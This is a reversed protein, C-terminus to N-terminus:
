RKRPRGRPKRFTAPAVEPASSPEPEVVTAKPGDWRKFIAFTRENPYIQFGELDVTHEDRFQDVARKVDVMGLDDVIIIGGPNLLPWVRCLDGYAGEYSHDGDVNILDFKQALVDEPLGNRTDCTFFTAEVGPRFRRFNEAAVANSRYDGSGQERTHGSFQEADLGVYTVPPKAGGVLAGSTIAIGSYGFRVGIELVRQPAYKKGIGAYDSYYSSEGFSTGFISIDSPMAIQEIPVYLRESIDFLDSRM